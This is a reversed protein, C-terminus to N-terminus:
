ARRQSTLSFQATVARVQATKGLGMEDALIGGVHKTYLEWLWRLGQQQHEQLKTYTDEDVLQGNQLRLGTM